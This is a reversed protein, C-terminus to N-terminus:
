TGLSICWGLEDTADMMVEYEEAKVQDAALVKM